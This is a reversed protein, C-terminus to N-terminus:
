NDKGVTIPNNVNIMKEFLAKDRRGAVYENLLSNCYSIYAASQVPDDKGYKIVFARVFQVNAFANKWNLNRRWLENLLDM